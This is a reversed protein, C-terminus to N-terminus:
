EPWGLSVNRAGGSNCCWHPFLDLRETMGQELVFGPTIDCCCCVSQINQTLPGFLQLRHAFSAAARPKCSFGSTTRNLSMFHPAPQRRSQHPEAEQPSPVLIAATHGFTEVQYALLRSFKSYCSTPPRFPVPSPFFRLRHWVCAARLVPYSLRASLTLRWM